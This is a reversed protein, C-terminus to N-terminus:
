KHASWIWAAAHFSVTGNALRNCLLQSLRDILDSKEQEGLDRILPAAPGIRSFYGIADAVPDEGAGSVFSFDVAEAEADKWGASALIARVHDPEAFAFPGPAYRPMPAPPVPLLAPIESAWENESRERFCSFVLQAGPAAIEAFHSFAAVPDDFFMVGHRSVILDPQWDGGSWKTADHVEFRVRAETNRACAAAALDESLDVGVISALPLREAVAFSTAGAGCGIDLIKADPSARGAIREVLRTNLEALSRDTREWEAAWSRGVAGQWDSANTM